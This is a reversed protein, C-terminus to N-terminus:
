QQIYRYTITGEQPEPATASAEFKARYVYTLAAERMCEEPIQSQSNDISAGTVKGSRNVKIKMVITGSGICTYSPKSMKEHRRGGLDYEVTTTGKLAGSSTGQNSNPDKEQKNNDTKHQQTIDVEKSNNEGPNGKGSQLKDFEAKEFAKLEDYVSKEVNSKNFRADYNQESNERQDAANFEKNIVNGNADLQQEPQKQPELPPLLQIPVASMDIFDVTPEYVFVVQNRSYIVFALHLFLTGLVGFRHRWVLDLFMAM